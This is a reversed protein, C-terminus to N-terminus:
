YNFLGPGNDMRCRRYRGTTNGMGIALCGIMTTGGITAILTTVRNVLGDLLLVRTTLRAQWIIGRLRGSDAEHERGCFICRFRIGKM